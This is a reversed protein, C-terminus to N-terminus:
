LTSVLKKMIHIVMSNGVLGVIGVLCYITPLIITNFTSPPAEDMAAQNTTVNVQIYSRTSAEM